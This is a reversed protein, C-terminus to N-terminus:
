STKEADDDFRCVVRNNRGSRLSQSLPIRLTTPTMENWEEDYIFDHVFM